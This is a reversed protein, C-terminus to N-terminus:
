LEQPKRNLFLWISSGITILVIYVLWDLHIIGSTISTILATFLTMLSAVTAWLPYDATGSKAKQRTIGGLFVIGFVFLFLLPAFAPVASVTQTAITDIGSTSNPLNYLYDLMIM